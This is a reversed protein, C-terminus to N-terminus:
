QGDREKFEMGETKFEVWGGIWSIGPAREGTTFHGPCSASWESRDVQRTNLNLIHPAIGGSGQIDEHHPTYNLLLYTKTAHYKNFCLSIKV